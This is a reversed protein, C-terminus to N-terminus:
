AAAFLMAPLSMPPKLPPKQRTKDPKASTAFHYLSGPRLAGAWTEYRLLRLLDGTSPLANSQPERRARWRPPQLGRVAEQEKGKGRGGQHMRLAAVWLMAYAAVTMAPLHQNSVASRVQADGTGILTKEDRFNVEVGWRWLYYQLLKELPLEPQTCLLYAPQRYLMKSGKRLRYALPAIVVSRVPVQAGAKRWLVPGLTKIRFSHRKGAAFAEVELWPISEDQRLQEPTAALPGYVPRRGNSGAPKEVPPYHLVADKRMRGLYTSGAPLGRLVAANTYSGDGSYIIPCAAPCSERLQRMQELARVNLSMQKRQERQQQQELVDAQSSPKPASPAHFWGIPVMRAAGQELPWAASFQLYRQARVLNTQFAPGLPDRRWNVGAIHTGRKRVITDDLAVVLPHAEPLAQMVAARVPEFLAAEQVRDRSYLRYHASWDQQQSGTACILNTLTSREPCLLTGLMHGTLRQACRATPTARHTAV